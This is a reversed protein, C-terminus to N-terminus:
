LPKAQGLDGHPIERVLTGFHRWPEGDETDAYVELPIESSRIEDVMRRADGGPGIRRGVGYASRAEDVGRWHKELRGVTTWAAAPREIRQLPAVDSAVPPHWGAQIESVTGDGNLISVTM